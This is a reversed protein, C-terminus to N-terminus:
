CCSITALCAIYAPLAGRTAKSAECLFASLTFVISSILLGYLDIQVFIWFMNRVYSKAPVRDPSNPFGHFLDLFSALFGVYQNNVNNCYTCM